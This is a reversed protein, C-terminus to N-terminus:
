RRVVKKLIMVFECFNVVAFFYLFIDSRGFIACLLMMPERAGIAAMGIRIPLSPSGMEQPLKAQYTIAYRFIRTYSAVVGAIVLLPEQLGVGICIFVVGTMLLYCLGDIRGGYESQTKTARAIDGDVYDSLGFINVLIAGWLMNGNLFLGCGALGITLGVLTVVNASIGLQICLWAPYFSIPRIIYHAWPDKRADERKQATYSAKVESIKM